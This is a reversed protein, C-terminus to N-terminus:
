GKVQQSDQGHKKMKIRLYEQGKKLGKIMRQSILYQYSVMGLFVGAIVYARLSGDNQQYLLNFTTFGCYIWYLFDEIGTWFVTHPIVMRIIRFLDYLIMLRIGMGVSAVALQVEYHINDSM